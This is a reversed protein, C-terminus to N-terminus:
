KKGGAGAKAVAADVMTTVEEGSKYGSYHALAKGKADTIVVFPLTDGFNERGFKKLFEADAELDDTNIDALVFKEANVPVTGGNILKKTAQCNGCNERGLLLFGMKNEKKAQSLAKSLDTGWAPPAAPLSATFLSLVLILLPKM